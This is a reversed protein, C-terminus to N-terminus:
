QRSQGVVGVIRRGIVQNLVFSKVLWIVGVNCKNKSGIVPCFWLFLVYKSHEVCLLRRGDVLQIKHLFADVLWRRHLLPSVLWVLRLHVAVYKKGAFLPWLLHQRPQLVVGHRLPHQQGGKNKLRRALYSRDDSRQAIGSAASSPPRCALMGERGRQMIIYQYLFLVSYAFFVRQITNKENKNNWM